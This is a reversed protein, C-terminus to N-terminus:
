HTWLQGDVFTSIWIGRYAWRITQLSSSRCFYFNLHRQLCVGMKAVSSDVFTSIWIGRYAVNTFVPSGVDVFTSIWIGRYAYLADFHTDGDVFTSIWIGRYASSLSTTLFYRCFYFNLHRQLSKSPACALTFRCFYFNLHRQLCVSSGPAYRSDVFTSIWIGRYAPLIRFYGYKDVFTSIWIGRYAVRHHNSDCSRCFYFNLHRQLRNQIQQTLM